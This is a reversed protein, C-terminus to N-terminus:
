VCVYTCVYVCVCVYEITCLCVCVYVFMCMWKLVEKQEQCKLQM